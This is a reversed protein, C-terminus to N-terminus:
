QPYMPQIIPVTLGQRQCLSEMMMKLGTLTHMVQHMNSNIVGVEYKLLQFEGYLSQINAGPNGIAGPMTTGYVMPQQMPVGGQMTNDLRPRKNAPFGGTYGTAAGAAAANQDQYKKRLSALNCNCNKGDITVFGAAVSAQASAPAKYVVFGYGKSLGSEKDTVLKSKVIEGYMSMHQLLSEGSTTPLLGGIFVQTDETPTTVQGLGVANPIVANPDM